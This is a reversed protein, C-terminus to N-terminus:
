SRVARLHALGANLLPAVYEMGRARRAAEITDARVVVEEIYSWCELLTRPNDYSFNDTFTCFFQPEDGGALRQEEIATERVSVLFRRTEDPTDFIQYAIRARDPPGEFSAYILGSSTSHVEEFEFPSPVINPAFPTEALAGQLDAAGDRQWFVLLSVAIIAVGIAVILLLKRGM